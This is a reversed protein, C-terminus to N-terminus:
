ACNLNRMATAAEAVAPDAPFRLAVEGLTLCADTDQGMQGLALGLKLLAQPAYAGDPAGAFSELFSRAAESIQGLGEQAEGRRLMAEASLAGGPYTQLYTAFGDAASRFDGQALAESARAFDEQEGLAMQSSGGSTPPTTVSPAPAAASSSGTGGGLTPTNGLSGIDCNPELECLRFELDGIRNTGDSVVRSIRYELEETKATIQQLVVEISNLRDLPTAGAVGGSLGGSATLEARLNSVDAYLTTLQQRIDALTAADQAVAFQPLLAVGIMLAAKRIM